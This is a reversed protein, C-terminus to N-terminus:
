ALEPLEKKTNTPIYKYCLIPCLISLNPHTKTEPILQYYFFVQRHFFFPVTTKLIM